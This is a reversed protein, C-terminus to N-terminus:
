GGKPMRARRDFYHRFGKLREFPGGPLCSKTHDTLHVNFLFWTFNARIDAKSMIRSSKMEMLDLTDYSQFLMQSFLQVTDPQLLGIVTRESTLETTDAQCAGFGTCPQYMASIPLDYAQNLTYYVVGMQLAFAVLVSPKGFGAKAMRYAGEMTPVFNNQSELANVPLTICQRRDPQELPASIVTVVDVDYSIIKEVTTALNEWSNSDNYFYYGVGVVVKHKERDDGLLKRFEKLSETFETATSVNTVFAPAGYVNLVGYHNIRATTKLEELYEVFDTPYLDEQNLFYAHFSLGCTTDTYTACANRFTPFSITNFVPRPRNDIIRLHTLFIIDCTKDPPYLPQIAAAPSGVSCLLPPPSETPATTTTAPAGSPGPTASTIQSTTSGPTPSPPRTRRSRKPTPRPTPITNLPQTPEIPPPVSMGSPPSGSSGNVEEAIDTDGPPLVILLVIIVGFILCVVLFICIGAWARVSEGESNYLFGVVALRQLNGSPDAIVSGQQAYPDAAYPDAAYSYDYFGQDAM